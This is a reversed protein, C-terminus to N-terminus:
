QGFTNVFVIHKNVSKSFTVIKAFDITISICNSFKQIEICTLSLACFFHLKSSNPNKQSMKDRRLFINFDHERESLKQLGKKSGRFFAFTSSQNSRSSLKRLKRQCTKKVKKQLSIDIIKRWLFLIHPPLAYRNCLFLTEHVQM